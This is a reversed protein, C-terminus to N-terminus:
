NRYRDLSFLIIVFTVPLFMQQILPHFRIPKEFPHSMLLIFLRNTRLHVSLCFMGYFYFIIVILSRPSTPWSDWTEQPSSYRWTRAWHCGHRAPYNNSAKLSVFEYAVDRFVMHNLLDQSPLSFAPIQVEIPAGSSSM